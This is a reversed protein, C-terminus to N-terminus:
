RRGPLGLAHRVVFGTSIMWDPGAATMRRAVSVDLQASEGVGHTLGTQFVSVRPGDREERSFTFAEWYGSFGKGLEHGVSVTFADQAVRGVGDSMNTWNINGSVAFGLPADKAWAVKVQPDYTGSTVKSHGWPMAVAPIVALAPLFRSENRLKWKFGVSPDGVGRIREASSFGDSSKESTFGDGSLRLEFRRGLGIRSLPSGFLATRMGGSKEWSFGSEWQVDGFRIVETSETFDPRDTVLEPPRGSAEQGHAVITLLALTAFLTHKM